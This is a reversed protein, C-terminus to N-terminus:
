AREDARMEEELLLFADAARAEPTGFGAAGLRKRAAFEEVLSMSEPTIFSAPCETLGVTGHAWVLRAPGREQQALWGCRRRRELGNRRCEGCNWGAQGERTFHFAAILKKKRGRGARM